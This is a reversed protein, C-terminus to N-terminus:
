DEKDLYVEIATKVKLINDINPGKHVLYKQIARNTCDGNEVMLAFSSALHDIANQLTDLDEKEMFDMLEVNRIYKTIKSIVKYLWLVYSVYKWEFNINHIHINDVYEKFYDESTKIDNVSFTVLTNVLSNLLNDLKEIKKKNRYSSSLERDDNIMKEKDDDYCSVSEPLEEEDVKVISEELLKNFYESENSAFTLNFSFSDYNINFFTIRFYKGYSDTTFEIKICDLDHRSENVLQHLKNIRSSFEEDREILKSIMNSTIFFKKYNYESDQTDVFPIEILLKDKWGFFPGNDGNQNIYHGLTTASNLPFELSEAVKIDDRNAYCKIELLCNEELDGDSDEGYVDNTIWTTVYKSKNIEKQRKM